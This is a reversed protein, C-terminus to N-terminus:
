EGYPSSPRSCARNRRAQGCPATIRRLGYTRNIDATYVNIDKTHALYFAFEKEPVSSKLGDVGKAVWAEFNILDYDTVCIGKDM